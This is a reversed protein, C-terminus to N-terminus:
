APVMKSHRRVFNDSDLIMGGEKSRTLEMTVLMGPQLASSFRPWTSGFCLAEIFGSVGLLGIWAMEQMRKDKKRRIGTIVGTVVPRRGGARLLSGIDAIARKKDEPKPWPYNLAPHKGTVVREWITLAEGKELKRRLEPISVLARAKMNEFTKNLSVLVLVPTGMPSDVVARFDDFIDWDVKARNQVGSADEFNVNAYRAGWRMREREAEDPLTGTHFDGVQNYKREVTVGCIWVHRGKWFDDDGMSRIPVTINAKLFDGWADIPHKGFALPSVSSAELSRREDTWQPKSASEALKQEMEALSVKSRKTALKWIDEVNDIFWGPNPLLGDLAGARVLSEVVRKNVRRKEIRVLFDTFDTFPQAEMIADSAKAGVNKIDCLSGRIADDVISFHSKSRSVDPPLVKIDHKKADKVIRQIELRDPEYRLLAAYFEIPYYVKLYMCWYAIIGYSTAHSKNFGYSGFFTIVDMIRGAIEPTMGPTHEMAGKIFAEREKGIIEDGMKKAIKKRLSDATGPAFGAVEQFIRLVHEQYVIIGLTDKTIESVRPHMSTERVLAPDKKRKVYETALGSRATGPRNLATMAAVDEFHTFAVGGCIKDAGPTDYQFVGVYDHDTFGQLTRADDLSLAELDIAVGHREQVYECATRLVTMTRLGLVDMKLLGCAAVGYMEFASVILPKGTSHQRTELPIMDMLKVPSAVIGAAHIGLNKAMGELKKAHRLVDPYRQDFERCVKFEKFSDEITQSAREDGSSREIISATVAQVEMYPVELVRAVDKLCQKGSLKGVTAIQCVNDHGYKDRLHQLIQERRIDEFDMDIDPMDIRSPSIFREFLLNHEIPDVSTIGLLFAVISGAASGRGPGCAISQKRVWDYLDRVIIFYAVFKQRKIARLEMKLRDVYRAMMESEAVGEHAAMKKARGPIDRWEMGLLCLEKLYAFTDGGYSDPITVPPLLCKHWDFEMKYSAREVLEVTTDLAEKILKSGMYPHNKSFEAAMEARTRMHFGGGDEFRFRDPNSLKDNTGICLLVEHHEWDDSCVYHADQTGLLRCEPWRKRFALMLKNCADQAGDGLHHPQVELYLRDGFVDHLSEITNIAKTKRGKMWSDTIPSSACGTGVALGEGHEMLTKLDIRPKYYFGEIWAKSSLRCLNQYGAADLAWVTMHWRDRIGLEDEAQRIVERHESKGRGKTLDAKEADTLGRRHMDEAVYFEIGFVPKLGNAEDGRESVNSAFAYAGRMTGHDTFALGPSGRALAETVYEGIKGCGDLQSNDSHTHLHAFDDRKAPM